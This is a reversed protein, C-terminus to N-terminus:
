DMQQSEGWAERDFRKIFMATIITWPEHLFTSRSVGFLGIFLSPRISTAVWMLFNIIILFGIPGLNFGGGRRYGIRYAM